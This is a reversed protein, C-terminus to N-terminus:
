LELHSIAKVFMEAYLSAEDIAGFTLHSIVFEQNGVKFVVNWGESWEDSEGVVVCSRLSLYKGLLKRQQETLESVTEQIKVDPM